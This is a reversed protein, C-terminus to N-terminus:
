FLREIIEDESFGKHRMQVVKDVQAPSIGHEVLNIIGVESVGTQKIVAIDSGSIVSKSEKFKLEALRVIASDSMGANRMEVIEDCWVPIANLELLDIIRKDSVGANRLEVVADGLEFQSHHLRDIKLLRVITKEATGAHRLTVIASVEEDNIGLDLLQQIVSESCGASQLKQSEKSPQEIRSRHDDQQCSFGFIIVVTILGLLKWIHQKNNQGQCTKYTFRAQYEREFKM